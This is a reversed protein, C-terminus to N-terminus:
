CKTCKHGNKLFTRPYPIPSRGLLDDFSARSPIDSGSKHRRAPVPARPKRPEKEIRQLLLCDNGYYLVSDGSMLRARKRPTEVDHVGRFTPAEVM